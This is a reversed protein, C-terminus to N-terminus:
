ENEIFEHSYGSTLCCIEMNIRQRTFDQYNTSLQILRILTSRFWKQYKVKPYGTVYPLLVSSTNMTSYLQGHRNELHINQINIQQGYEIDMDIDDDSFEKLGVL